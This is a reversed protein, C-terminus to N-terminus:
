GSYTPDTKTFFYKRRTLGQDCNNLLTNVLFLFIKKFTLYIYASDQSSNFTLATDLLKIFVHQFLPIQKTPIYYISPPFTSLIPDLISFPIDVLPRDSWDISSLLVDNSSSFIHTDSSFPSTDLNDSFSSQYSLYIDCSPSQTQLRTNLSLLLKAATAVETLSSFISGRTNITPTFLPSTFHPNTSVNLEFETFLDTPSCQSNM